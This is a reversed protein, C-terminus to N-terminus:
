STDIAGQLRTPTRGFKARYEKATPVLRVQVKKEHHLAIDSLKHDLFPNAFRELTQRAFAEADPCRDAITPVIEDFLLGRLWDGIEPDAVAERVLRIDPRVRRVHAVLASHAGNLIRVKRFAYPQV